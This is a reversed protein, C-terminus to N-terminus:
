HRGVQRRLGHHAHGMQAQLSIELLGGVELEPILGEHVGEKDLDVGDGDLRGQVQGAPVCTGEAQGQTREGVAM